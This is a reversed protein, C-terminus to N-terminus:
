LEGRCIIREPGDVFYRNDKLIVSLGELPTLELVRRVGEWDAAVVIAVQQKDNRIFSAYYEIFTTM